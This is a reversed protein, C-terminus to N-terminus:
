LLGMLIMYKTLFDRLSAMSTLLQNQVTKQSIGLMESIERTSFDEFHKLRFIEARKEPQMSHWFQICSKLEKEIVLSDTQLSSLAMDELPEEFFPTSQKKKYLMFVQYRVSTLLYAYLNRIEIKGRREWLTAFVDQVVEEAVEMNRLRKHTENLLKKWHREYITNFAESIGQSMKSTLESDSLSDYNLLM